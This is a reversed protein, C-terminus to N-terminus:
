ERAVITGRKHEQELNLGACTSAGIVNEKSSVPKRTKEIFGEIGFYLLVVAVVFLVANVILIDSHQDSSKIFARLRRYNRMPTRAGLNIGRM